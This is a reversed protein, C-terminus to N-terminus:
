MVGVGLLQMSLGGGQPLDSPEGQFVPGSADLAAAYAVAAAVIVPEALPRFWKDLTITEPQTLIAPDITWTPIQFRRPNSM